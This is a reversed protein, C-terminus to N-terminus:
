TSQTVVRYLGGVHHYTEAGDAEGYEVATDRRVALLRRGSIALAADTLLVDVREDIQEAVSASGGRAVAKVLWVDEDVRTRWTWAPRGAQRHFIVFPTGTTAPAKRHHVAGPASLLGTLELDATLLGYLAERVPNM